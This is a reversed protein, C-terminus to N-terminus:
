SSSSATELGPVSMRAYEINQRLNDAGAGGSGHLWLIVPYKTQRSYGSPIFLRYPMIVGSESKYSRALFGDIHDQAIGVSTMTSFM